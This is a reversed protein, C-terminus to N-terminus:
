EALAAWVAAAPVAGERLIAPMAGTLDVLTSAIGLRTPGGDLVMDIRGALSRAVEAAETPPPEGSPNASPAAIPRGAARILARAVPHDPWRVAVTEGGGRTIAPVVARARLVLTLPGPAFKSLLKRAAAPIEQVLPELEETEALHLILGKEPPRGKAEYIRAVAAADLGDAGLGYVTETPFAVLGGARIVAAAREIRDAEPCQPDVTIIEPRKM